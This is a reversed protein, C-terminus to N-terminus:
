CNAWTPRGLNRDMHLGHPARYPGGFLALATGHTLVVEGIDIHKAKMYRATSCLNSIGASIMQANVEKKTIHAQRQLTIAHTSTHKQDRHLTKNKEDDYM